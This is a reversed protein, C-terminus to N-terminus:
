EAPDGLEVVQGVGEGLQTSANVFVIGDHETRGSSEHIHGFVHLRPKVEFVREFLDRCGCLEGTRNRDLIGAPPGHTILVDVGAPIKAWVRALEEGRPLNFAWGGFYPQWPSGYFTVGEIECGSDELYIANTVRARAEAPREQFCFDHNGCIVVKHRHPLSGLWRNFSEVDELKGRRTIDGAHVLVDGDPVETLHHRAHTDSVCVIRM